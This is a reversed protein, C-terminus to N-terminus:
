QEGQNNGHQGVQIERPVGPNMQREPLEDWRDPDAKVAPGIGQGREEVTPERGGTEYYALPIPKTNDSM